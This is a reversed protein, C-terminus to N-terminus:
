KLTLILFHGELPNLYNLLQPLFEKGYELYFESFNLQREQLSQNPFLQEQIDTVRKLYDDLKRKQAKLLRSELNELGKIQKTEQAAVAGKFSKDTHEALEYLAKFQQQLHNKQETFDIDLKSIQKTVKTKLASTSLFLDAVSVKLKKLKEQQKSTMLLASNRLLLMPFVVNQSEFTSKLQMWYALEGGGGIYCLNPLIVEQYLPRMIVNPSFRKPFKEVEKLLETENWSIDTNIVQYTGENQVIRERIGDKIYFLNIERPNVQIKYNGNLNNLKTNAESVKAFATQEMLEEKIYPLFLRKLHSDNGDIIILGYAKFLANVLYRMADALNQHELYANQFLEKLESANDTSNLQDGFVDFVDSLGELDLEGVAGSAERNWQVKKGDYNFFNIEEFDHDETAMWYIPVFNYNPYKGKLQKCLNITSVIKYFFYLPGTFLNLQHGTTITFTTKEKLLDLNTLTPSSIQLGAYQSMLSKLLVARNDHSFSSQKEAIQKEFNELKPFRNYFPRLDSSEDLYDCILSSFYLTDKFAICDTPM